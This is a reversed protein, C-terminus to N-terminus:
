SRRVAQVRAIGDPTAQYYQRPLGGREAPRETGQWSRLLGQKELSHLTVYVRCLAPASGRVIALHDVIELTPLATTEVIILTQMQLLSLGRLPNM